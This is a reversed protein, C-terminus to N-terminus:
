GWGVACWVSQVGRRDGIRKERVARSAQMHQEKLRSDREEKSESALKWDSM